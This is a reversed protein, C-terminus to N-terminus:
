ALKLATVANADILKVGMRAVFGFLTQAYEAYREASRVLTNQSQILIARKISGFVVGVGGSASSQDVNEILNYGLLKGEREISRYLPQGNVDLVKMLRLRMAPSVSYCPASADERYAADVQNQMDLLEGMTPVSSSASTAGVTLQAFIGETGDVSAYNNFKRAVRSAFLGQLFGDLDFASDQLLLNSVTVSTAFNKVNPKPAALVPNVQPLLTNEGIISAQNSADDSLFTIFPVGNTVNQLTAGGRLWGSASVLRAQYQHLWQGAPVTASGTAVDTQLSQYTRKETPKHIFHRWEEQVRLEKASVEEGRIEALKNSAQIARTDAGREADDSDILRMIGHFRAEEMKSFVPKANLIQQATALLENRKEKTLVKEESV